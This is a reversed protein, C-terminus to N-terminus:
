AFTQISSLGLYISCMIGALVLFSIAMIFVVVCTFHFSTSKYTGNIQVLWSIFLIFLPITPLFIAIYAFVM